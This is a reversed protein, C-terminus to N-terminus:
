FIQKVVKKSMGWNGAHNLSLINLKYGKELLRHVCELVVFNENQSFNSTTEDHIAIDIPYIIKNTAFDVKLEFDGQAFHKTFVHSNETFQLHTLLSKLNDKTTM